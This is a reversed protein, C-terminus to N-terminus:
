PLAFVPAPKIDCSLGVTVFNDIVLGFAYIQTVCKDVGDKLYYKNDELGAAIPILAGNLLNALLSASTYSFSSSSSSSSTSRFYLTDIQRGASILKELAKKGTINKSSLGGIVPQNCCILFGFISILFLKSTINNMYAFM